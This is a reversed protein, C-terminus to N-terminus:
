RRTREHLRYPSNPPTVRRAPTGRRLRRTRPIGLQRALDESANSTPIGHVRLGVRVREALARLFVNAAHGTGL